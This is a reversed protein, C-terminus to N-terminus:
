NRWYEDSFDVLLTLVENISTAKEIEKLQESGALNM